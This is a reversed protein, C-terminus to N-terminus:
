SDVMLLSKTVQVKKLVEQPLFNMVFKLIQRFFFPAQHIYCIEISPVKRLEKAIKEIFSRHHDIEKVYYKALNVHLRFTKYKQLSKYVQSVIHMVLTDYTETRAVLKFFPYSLVVDGVQLEVLDSPHNSKREIESIWCIKELVEKTVDTHSNYPIFEESEYSM